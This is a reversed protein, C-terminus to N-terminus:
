GRRKRPKGVNATSTSPALDPFGYVGDKGLEQLEAFVRQRIRNSRVALRELHADCLTVLTEAETITMPQYEMHVQGLRVIGSPQFSNNTLYAIVAVNEHANVSHAVHKNRLDIIHQHFERLEEPLDDVEPKTGRVGTAFARGYMVVSAIALSSEPSRSSVISESVRQHETAFLKALEIDRRLSAIDELEPTSATSVHVARHGKSTRLEPLDAGSWTFFDRGPEVPLVLESDDTV